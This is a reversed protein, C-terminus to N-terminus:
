LVAAAGAASPEATRQLGTVLPLLDLRGAGLEGEYMGEEIPSAANEIASRLDGPPLPGQSLRLAGAGAVFPAAM